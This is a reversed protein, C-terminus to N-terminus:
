APLCQTQETGKGIALASAAQIATGERELTAFARANAGNHGLLLLQHRVLLASVRARNWSVEVNTRIASVCVPKARTLEETAQTRNEDPM